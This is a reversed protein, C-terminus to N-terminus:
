GATPCRDYNVLRVQYGEKRLRALCKEAPERRNFTACLRWGAGASVRCQVRFQRAMGGPSSVAVAVDGLTLETQSAMTQIRGKQAGVDVLCSM